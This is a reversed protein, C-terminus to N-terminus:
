KFDQEKLPRLLSERFPVSFPLRDRYRHDCRAARPKVGQTGDTGDEENIYSEVCIAMSISSNSEKRYSRGDLAVAVRTVPLVLIHLLILAVRHLKMM